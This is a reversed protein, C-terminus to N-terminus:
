EFPREGPKRLQGEVKAGGGFLGSGSFGGTALTTLYAAETSTCRPRFGAAREASIWETRTVERWEGNGRKIWYVYDDM